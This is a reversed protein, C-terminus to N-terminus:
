KTYENSSGDSDIEYHIDFNITQVTGTQPDSQTYLNLSNNSDRSLRFQVIDSLSDNAPPTITPFTTVQHITNSTYTVVNGVYRSSTWVTTKTGGLKHWRHELIWNPVKNSDQFWHLHPFINSALKREHNLQISMAVFDATTASTKFDLTSETSNQVVDSSPSELKQGILTQLADRFTTASGYSRRTGDTGFNTYSVTTGVSVSYFSQVTELSITVNSSGLITNTNNTATLGSSVKIGAKTTPVGLGDLATKVAKQSPILLDSNSAFTSDTSLNKYTLDKAM